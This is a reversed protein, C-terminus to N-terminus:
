FCATTASKKNEDLIPCAEVDDFYDIGHRSLLDEPGHAFDYFGSM